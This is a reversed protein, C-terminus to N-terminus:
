KGKLTVAEQIDLSEVKWLGANGANEFRLNPINSYQRFIEHNPPIRSFDFHDRTRVM